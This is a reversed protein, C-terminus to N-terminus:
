IEQNLAAAQRFVDKFESNKRYFVPIRGLRCRVRYERGGTLEKGTWFHVWKGEPLFVQRYEAKPTVVPCVYLESGLFYSYPDKSAGYDLAEWFDPRM